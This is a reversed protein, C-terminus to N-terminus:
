PTSPWSVVQLSDNETPNQPVLSYHFHSDKPSPPSFIEFCRKQKIFLITSFFHSRSSFFFFKQSKLVKLDKSAEYLSAMPHEIFYDGISETKGPDSRNSGKVVRPSVNKRAVGNKKFRDYVRQFQVLQLKYLQKVNQTTRYKKIFATKVAKPSRLVAFQEIIFTEQDSTFTSDKRPSQAAM